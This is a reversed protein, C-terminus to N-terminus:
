EGKWHLTKKQWYLDASVTLGWRIRRQDTASARCWAALAVAFQTAVAPTFRHGVGDISYTAGERVSYDHGFGMPALQVPTADLAGWLPNPVSALDSRVGRPIEVRFQTAPHLIVTHRHSVVLGDCWYWFM